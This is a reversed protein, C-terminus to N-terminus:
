RKFKSNLWNLGSNIKKNSTTKIENFLIKSVRKVAEDEDEVGELSGGKSKMWEATKRNIKTLKNYKEAGLNNQVNYAVVDDLNSLKPKGRAFKPEMGEPYVRNAYKPKRDYIYRWGYDTKVKSKYKWHYLEDDNNTYNYQWM